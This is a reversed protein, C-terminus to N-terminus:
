SNRRKAQLIEGLTTITKGSERHKPCREHGQSDMEWEIPLFGVRTATYTETVEVSCLAPESRGCVYCKFTKM